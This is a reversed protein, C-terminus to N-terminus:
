LVIREWELKRHKFNLIVGVRQNTIRLYNLMLGREHDTIRDIVKADVVVTDFAILDPVFLGVKHGKYLIDFSPQQQFPIGQLGFEVVLANEYPKEVLGHGLANLVEIACGVIRFVEQKFLLKDDNTHM